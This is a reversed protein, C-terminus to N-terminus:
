IRPKRSLLDKFPNHTLPNSPKPPSFPNPLKSGFPDLGKSAALRKLAVEVLRDRNEFISYHDGKPSVVIHDWVDIGLILGYNVAVSTLIIDEDSATVDGQPHNHALIVRSVCALIAGRFVNRMEVEVRELGGTCIEEGGVLRGSADMYLVVFKEVPSKDLLKHLVEAAQETTNIRTPAVVERDRVLEVKFMPVITNDLNQSM